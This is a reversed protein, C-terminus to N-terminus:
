LVILIVVCYVTGTFCTYDAPLGSIKIGDASSIYTPLFAIIEVRDLGYKCVKGKQLQGVRACSPLGKALELVTVSTFVPSAHYYETFYVVCSPDWELFTRRSLNYQHNMISRTYAVVLNCNKQLPPYQRM